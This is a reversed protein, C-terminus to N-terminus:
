RPLGMEDGIAKLCERSLIRADFEVFDKTRDKEEQVILSQGESTSRDSPSSLWASPTKRPLSAIECFVHYFHFLHAKSSRRVADTVLGKSDLSTEIAAFEPM